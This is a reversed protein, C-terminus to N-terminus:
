NLPNEQKYKQILTPTAAKYDLLAKLVRVKDKISPDQGVNIAVENDKIRGVKTYFEFWVGDFSIVFDVPKKQKAMQEQIKRIHRDNLKSIGRIGIKNAIETLANDYMSDIRDPEKATKLKVEPM